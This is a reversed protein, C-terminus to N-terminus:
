IFLRSLFLPLLSSPLTRRRAVAVQAQGERERKRRLEGEWMDDM